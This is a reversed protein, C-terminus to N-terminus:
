NKVSQYTFIVKGNKITQLVKINKIEETDVLLPNRDLIILDAAKGEKISGKDAEEFYEYAGNLTVAKLADYVSIAQEKGILNGERSVRNVACWVSHLMDPKTVPTDQHFNVLVGRDLADKVPSIHNGREEGFNKRHIDGWFFVHGVFISAIMNIKAMRVLQDNRVTQCHIMVPRLEEVNSCEKLASEYANLFQNSAADGNCHALIQWGERVAMAVLRNVEEDKMWPYGCYNDEGCYPESMWASRGQPSGDLILKCGGLKLRNRYKRLIRRNKKLLGEGDESLLPYAVVDVKLLHLASMVKLINFTKKTIAGDQVTTIGNEIYDKQMGKFLDLINVKIKRAITQQILLMGNEELYGDPILTGRVRGIMGGEPDQTKETIGAALLAPSNACALHGSIHLILIPIEISVQDLLFKDPHRKETLFNHDYGFGIVAHRKTIKHKKIYQILSSKIDDFGECGTLDACLAMQGNMSFHSHSDVFAPMLCKGKLDHLVVKKDAIERLKQLTGVNKIKGNEVLVAEPSENEKEMTIISGGFFLTQM